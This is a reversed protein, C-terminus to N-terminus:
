GTMRERLWDDIAASDILIRGQGNKDRQFSRISGKKVLGYMTTLGEHAYKASEKVTLLEGRFPKEQLTITKNGKM